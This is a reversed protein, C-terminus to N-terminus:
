DRFSQVGERQLKRLDLRVVRESSGDIRLESDVANREICPTYTNFAHLFADMNDFLPPDNIQACYRRYCDYAREVKLDMWGDGVLYDLRRRLEHSTGVDRSLLAIRNLVKSIESMAHFQVIQVEEQSPAGSKMGILEDISADFESGFTQHLVKRLTWLGHLVVARNFIIRPAISRTKEDIVLSDEISEFIGDFEDRMIELNLGFGVEVLRRGLASLAVPNAQLRKFAHKRSEAEIDAKNMNVMVSREIIATEMEIAEGMFCIPATAVTKLLQMQNEAFKEVRGGGGIEAGNYSMKMIDKLKELKGKHARLERPKYEDIIFPASTSTGAHVNLAFPTCATASKISVHEDSFWHLRALLEVTKTKGSGATGYVQLLPFQRYVKLYASRFYCAVFWGLLDAIITPKNIAFLDQLAPAMSEDLSPARHVDINYASTAIKPRYRLRFYNPDSPELSSLFTDQTLYVAVPTNEEKKRPNNILMFGERHFTYVNSKEATAKESMIDMLATAEVDGGQFSLQHLAFFRKMAQSSTFLDGGMMVRARRQGAVIMDAEFGRFENSESDHFSEVNKFSARCISDIQEGTRKFLGGDNHMLGRRLARHEDFQVVNEGSEAAAEKKAIEESDEIAIVGLDPMPTGAKLLRGLPGPDFDYLSNESMYEWLRQLEAQRLEFTGYRRSDSVHNQCLGRCRELFEALPMDVSVAYIALQMAISQFGAGEALGEGAMIREVTPPTKKAKKWPDLIANAKEVRKKKGRMQTTVKGRCRDFLMAFKSNLSPPTAAGIERPAKILEAYVEPTIALAEDVTLPVKYCGNERKVNPTRWMRGRKATYVNLDLTDVMLSEAMARYLYPLWPIGSVVSSPQMFCEPPVEVHFGKSGTAYLRAQKLDFGIEDELKVLFGTFGECAAELDNEADFDAYFPGRYRVKSWENDDPVTSLDLVTSFAPRAHRLVSDRESALTLEWKSEKGERQYHFFWNGAM